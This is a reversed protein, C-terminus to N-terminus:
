FSWVKCSRSRSRCPCSQFGRPSCSWAHPVFQWETSLQSRGLFQGQEAWGQRSFRGFRARGQVPDVLVHSFVELVVHGHTLCLSGNQLCNHGVLFSAKSRGVRAALVVLGQVVKFPISLSM